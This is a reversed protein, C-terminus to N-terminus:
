LWKYARLLISVWILLTIILALLVGASAADKAHKALEHYELTVLDVVREISSNIVEAFIPLFLSTWLIMKYFFDIKLFFLIVTFIVFSVIEVRMPMENKTVEILGNISHSLNRLLSFKKGKNTLM